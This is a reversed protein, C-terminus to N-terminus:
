EKYIEQRVDYEGFRGIIDGEVGIHQIRSNDRDCVYFRDGSPAFCIGMPSRFQGPANGERGIIKVSTM